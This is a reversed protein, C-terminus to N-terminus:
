TGLRALYQSGLRINVEPKLLDLPEGDPTGTLRSLNRATYDMLQMLGKAGVPSIVDPKYLSETRMIAGPGSPNLTFQKAYKQVLPKFAMPYRRGVAAQRGRFGGVERKAASRCSPSRHRATFSNIDEFASILM